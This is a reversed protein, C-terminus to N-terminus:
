LFVDFCDLIIIFFNIKFLFFWGTGFM